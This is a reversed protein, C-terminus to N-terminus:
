PAPRARIAEIRQKWPQGGLGPDILALRKIHALIAGTRSGDRNQGALVELSLTWAHWFGEPRSSPAAGEPGSDLAAAAQQLLPFAAAPDAALLHARALGLHLRPRGGPIGADKKLLDEYLDRAGFVGAEVMADALDARFRDLFPSGHARAFAVAQEAAPRLQARAFDRVALPDPTPPAPPAARRQEALQAWLLDLQQVRAVDHLSRAATAHPSGPTIRALQALAETLRAILAAGRGGEGGGPLASALLRAREYRWLDIEPLSEYRATALALADEYASRAPAADGAPAEAELARAHALAAAIAEAARPNGAHDRALRTLARAAELRSEGTAHGPQTLLVAREWLADAAFAGAKPDDAVAAFRRAGDRGAPERAAIVAQALRMGPPVALGAREARGALVALKEFVLPRLAGASFGLDGRTLLAAQEAVALDLLDARGAAVAQTTLASSAADVALVTWLPDPRGDATFPPGTMAARLRPLAQEVTGLAGSARVLGMWAEARTQWPTAGPAGPDRPATAVAAFEELATRADDKAGRRLLAAGYTVKRIGEPAASALALRSLLDAAAQAHTGGPEIAGLIAEARGRYFPISVTRARTLVDTAEATPPAPATSDRLSIADAAAKARALCEAAERADAGLAALQAPLPIGLLAASDSGDRAGRALLAAGQEVLATVIRADGAPLSAILARRGEIARDAAADRERVSLSRDTARRTLADLDAASPPQAVCATGVAFM